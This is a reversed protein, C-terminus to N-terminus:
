LAYTNSGKAFNVSSCARNESLDPLLRVHHKVRLIVRHAIEVSSPPVELRLKAVSGQGVADRLQIGDRDHTSRKKRLRVKFVKTQWTEKRANRKVTPSVCPSISPRFTAFYETASAIPTPRAYWSSPPDATTWPNRLRASRAPFFPPPVLLPPRAVRRCTQITRCPVDFRNSYFGPPLTRLNLSM